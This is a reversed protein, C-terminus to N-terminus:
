FMISCKGQLTTPVHIDGSRFILQDLGVTPLLKENFLEQKRRTGQLEVLGMCIFDVMVYM